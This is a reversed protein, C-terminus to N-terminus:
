QHREVCVLSGFDDMVATYYSFRRGQYEVGTGLRVYWGIQKEQGSAPDPLAQDDSEQRVNWRFWLAVETLGLDPSMAFELYASM